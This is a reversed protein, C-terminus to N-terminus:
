ECTQHTLPLHSVLNSFKGVFEDSSRVDIRTISCHNIPAGLQVIEKPVNYCRAMCYQIFSAHAIAIKFNEPEGSPNRVFSDGGDWRCISQFAMKHMSERFEYRQYIDVSKPAGDELFCCENKNAIWPMMDVLVAATEVTRRLGGYVLHVCPTSSGRAQLMRNLYKATIKAQQKGRKTLRKDMDCVRFNINETEGHRIFILHTVGRPAQLKKKLPHLVPQMIKPFLVNDVQYTGEKIQFPSITSQSMSKHLLQHEMPVQTAVQISWWWLFMDQKTQFRLVSTDRKGQYFFEMQMVPHEKLDLFTLKCSALPLLSRKRLATDTFKRLVLIGPYLEAWHTTWSTHGLTVRRTELFGCLVFNERRAAKQMAYDSLLMPHESRDESFYLEVEDITYRRATSGKQPVPRAFSPTPYHSPLQPRYTELEQTTAFHVSKSRKSSQQQQHSESGASASASALTSSASIPM